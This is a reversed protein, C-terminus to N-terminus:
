DGICKSLKKYGEPDITVHEYGMDKLEDVIESEYELLRPVDEKIVEVSADMGKVRVRVLDFGLRSIYNEAARLWRLKKITIPEGPAIRAALCASEPRIFDKMGISRLIEFIEPKTINADRLPSAITVDGCKSTSSVPINSSHAGDLLLNIHSEEAAKSLETLLMQKCYLCRNADNRMIREDHLLFVRPKLHWIGLKSALENSADMEEGTIFATDATIAVVNDTGLAEAAACLVLASDSGGSLCVGVKRDYQRINELLTEYKELM